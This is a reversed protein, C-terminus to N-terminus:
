KEILTNLSIYGLLIDDPLRKSSAKFCDKSSETTITIQPFSGSSENTPITSFNSESNILTRKTLSNPSSSPSEVILISSILLMSKLVCDSCTLLKKYLCEASIGLEIPQNACRPLACVTFGYPSNARLYDVKHTQM